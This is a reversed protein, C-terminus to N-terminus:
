QQGHDRCWGGEVRIEGAGGLGGGAGLQLIGASGTTGGTHTKAGLLTVPGGTNKRGAGTGALVASVTGSQLAFSGSSSLTGNQIAGGTLSVGGNQTQTTTGLDLTGGSVTTTRGKGGLTGSGSLLETSARATSTAAHPRPPHAQGAADQRGARTGALVASVTGSQLAFGGSSALTGNQITGGTLTVGGNQTQATAGLDLTGGSGTTTGGNGGLTGSGSL